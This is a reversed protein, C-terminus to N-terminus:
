READRPCDYVGVSCGPPRVNVRRITASDPVTSLYIDHDRDPNLYGLASMDLNGLFFTLGPYRDFSVIVHDPTHRRM